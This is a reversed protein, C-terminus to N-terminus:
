KNKWLKGKEYLELLYYGVFYGAVAGFVVDSLYHLSFYIRSFSILIASAIWFYKQKPLYKILVSILSFVVMSHTSPFSYSAIHIFPYNIIESPRQRLVILKIAFSLIFSIFFTSLILYALKKNKKYVILTPLLLFILIAFGFNTIIRFISDVAPFHFNKFISNVYLDLNYSIILM